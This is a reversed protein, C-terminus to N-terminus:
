SVRSRPLIMTRHLIGAEDFVPGACRFGMAEYFPIASVQAHLYIKQAGRARATRIARKLLTTGIGRRRYRKLVAMRGIKASTRRIVIRATAVAKGRNLALLHCARQDDRDLEIAQPVGQERVFVRLRIAFARRLDDNSSVRKIRLTKKLSSM